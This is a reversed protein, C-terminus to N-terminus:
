PILGPLPRPEIRVIVTESDGSIAQSFGIFPVVVRVQGTATTTLHLLGSADTFGQGILRGTAVEEVEASLGLVGEGANPVKNGNADYYILLDIVILRPVVAGGGAAPTTLPRIAIPPTPTVAPTPTTPLPTATIIITIPGPGSGGGTFATTATPTPTLLFSADCSFKYARKAAESLPMIGNHGVVFYILSNATSTYVFESGLNTPSIDDNGGLANFAADYAILNTDTAQSLGSTKCDYIFGAKVNMKYFDNDVTAEHWPYFNALYTGNGEVATSGPTVPNILTATNFDYNPEYNDPGKGAETVTLTYKRGAPDIGNDKRSVKLWYAGDLAATWNIQSAPDGIIKDDSTTVPGANPDTFLEMFTDLGLDQITIDAKYISDAKVIVKFWDVDGTPALTLNAYGIGIVVATAKDSSNNPECQDSLPSSSSVCSGLSTIEKFSLSYTKGAPDSPDKNTIKVYYFDDKNAIFNLKSGLDNISKDDNEDVKTSGADSYLKMVSDLGTSMTTEAEYAHGNKVQIKFWDEDGSSALTMGTFNAGVSFFTASGPSDNPECGDIPSLTATPPPTNSPTPVPTHTSTPPLGDDDIITLTAPNNANALTAPGSVWFLTFVATEYPEDLSDGTIPVSVSNSLAGASITLATPSTFTYDTGGGTADGGTVAINVFVDTPVTNTLLVTITATSPPPTGLTSTGEIVTYSRLSFDVYAQGSPLTATPTVTPAPQTATPTITPQVPCGIGGQSLAVPPPAYIAAMAPIGCVTVIIALTLILRRSQRIRARTM